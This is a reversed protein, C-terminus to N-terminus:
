EGIAEAATVAVRTEVGSSFQNVTASKVANETEVFGGAHDAAFAADAEGVDDVHKERFSPEKRDRGAGAEDSDASGDGVVHVTLVMVAASGKARVNALDSQM